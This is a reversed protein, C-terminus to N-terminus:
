VPLCFPLFYCFILDWPLDYFGIACIFKLSLEVNQQLFHVSSNQPPSMDSIHILYFNVLVPKSAAAPMKSDLLAMHGSEDCDWRFSVYLAPVSEKLLMYGKEIIPLSWQQRKFNQFEDPALLVCRFLAFWSAVFLNGKNRWDELFATRGCIILLLCLPIILTLFLEVAWSFPSNHAWTCVSM